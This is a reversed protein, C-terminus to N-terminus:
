HSFITKKNTSEVVDKPTPFSCISDNLPFRILLGSDKLILFQQTTKWSKTLREFSVWIYPEWQSCLSHPPAHFLILFYNEVDLQWIQITNQTISTITKKERERGNKRKEGGKEGGKDRDQKEWGIIINVLTCRHYQRSIDSSPFTSNFKKKKKVM